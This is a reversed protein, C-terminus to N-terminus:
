LPLPRGGSCKNGCLHLSKLSSITRLSVYDDFRLLCVPNGERQRWLGKELAITPINEVDRSPNCALFLFFLFFVGEHQLCVQKLRHVNRNM